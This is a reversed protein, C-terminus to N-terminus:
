SATFSVQAGERACNYFFSALENGTAQSDCAFGHSRYQDPVHGAADGAVARALECGVGTARIDFAGHDTEPQFGVQGCSLAGKATFTVRAGDASEENCSYSWSRPGAAAQGDCAFGHSAYSSGLDDPVDTAVARATACSVGAARLEYLDGGDFRVGTCDRMRADTPAYTTSVGTDGDLTIINDRQVISQPHIVEDPGQEPTGKAVQALLRQGRQLSVAATYVGDDDGDHLAVAGLEEIPPVEATPDPGPVGVVGYFTTREPVEGKTRVTFRLTTTGREPIGADRAQSRVLRANLRADDEASTGPQSGTVTVQQGAYPVLLGDDGDTVAYRQPGDGTIWYSGYADSGPPQKELTGTVDRLLGAGRPESSPSSPSSEASASSAASPGTGPAREEQHQRDQQGPASQRAQQDGQTGAPAAYAGGLAMSAAAALAVFWKM